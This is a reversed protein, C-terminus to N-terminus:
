SLIEHGTVNRLEETLTARLEQGNATKWAGEPTYSFYAGGTVPSALWLQRAASHRSLVFTKGSAHIQVSEPHREVEIFGLADARELAHEVADLLADAHMLFTSEDMM